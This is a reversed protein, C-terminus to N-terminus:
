SEGAKYEAATARRMLPGISVVGVSFTVVLAAGRDVLSGVLAVGSAVGVLAGAFATVGEKIGLNGPTISIVFSMSVLSGILVMEILGVNAGVASFAVFLRAVQVFLVVITWIALRLAAAPEDRWVKAALKLRGVASSFRNSRAFAKASVLAVGLAVGVLALAGMFPVLLRLGIHSGTVNLWVTAGMGGVTAVILGTVVTVITLMAYSSVSMGHVAHLYGARVVTGGRAPVYYNAMTNLATLGTAEVPGVEIHSVALATRFQQAQALLAGFGLVILLGVQTPSVETLASILDRQTAVYAAMGFLLALTVITPMLRKM